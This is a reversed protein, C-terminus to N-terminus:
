AIELMKNAYDKGSTPSPLPKGDQKNYNLQKKLSAVCNQFSKRNTIVTAAVTFSDRVVALMASIKM